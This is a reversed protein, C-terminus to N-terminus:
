TWRRVTIRVANKTDATEQVVIYGMKHVKDMVTEYAYQRMIKNLLEDQKIGTFTEIAWWDASVEFLEGAKKIGIGYKCGTKIEMDCSAIVEDKTYGQVNLKDGNEAIRYSMGLTDLAKQLFRLDKIKTEVRTIHSM